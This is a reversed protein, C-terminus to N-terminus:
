PDPFDARCVGALDRELSSELRELDFDLDLDSDLYSLGNQYSKM